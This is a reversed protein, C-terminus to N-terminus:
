EAALEERRKVEAESPEEFAVSGKKVEGAPEYTAIIEEVRPPDAPYRRGRNAPRRSPVRIPTQSM